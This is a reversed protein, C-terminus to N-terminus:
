LCKSSAGLNTVFAITLRIFILWYGQLELSKHKM